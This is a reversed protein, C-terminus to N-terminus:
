GIAMTHSPRDGKALLKCTPGIRWLHTSLAFGIDCWICISFWSCFMLHAAPESVRNCLKLLGCNPLCQRCLRDATWIKNQFILCVFFKVKPSSCTNWVAPKMITSHAGWVSGQVSYSGSAILKWLITDSVENNLHVESLLDWLSFFETIHKVNLGASIDIKNIWEDSM